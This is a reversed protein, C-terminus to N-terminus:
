IMIFISKKKIKGFFLIVNVSDPTSGSGTLRSNSHSQHRLVFHVSKFVDFLFGSLDKLRKRNM